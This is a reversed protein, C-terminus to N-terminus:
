CVQAAQAVADCYDIVGVADLVRAYAYTSSVAVVLALTLGVILTRDLRPSGTLRVSRCVLAAALGFGWGVILLVAVLALLSVSDVVISGLQLAASM